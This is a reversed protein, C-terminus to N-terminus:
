KIKQLYKKPGCVQDTIDSRSSPVPELDDTFAEDADIPTIASVDEDSTSLCQQSDEDLSQDTLAAQEKTCIYFRLLKLKTQEYLNASLNM